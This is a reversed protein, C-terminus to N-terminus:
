DLGLQMKKPHLKKEIKEIDCKILVLEEQRLESSRTQEVLKLLTRHLILIDLKSQEHISDRKISAKKSYHWTPGDAVIISNVGKCGFSKVLHFINSATSAKKSILKWALWNVDYAITSLTYDTRNKSARDWLVTVLEDQTLNDLHYLIKGGNKVGM